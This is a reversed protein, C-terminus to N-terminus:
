ECRHIGPPLSMIPLDRFRRQCDTGWEPQPRDSMSGQLSNRGKEAEMFVSPQLVPKIQPRMREIWRWIKTDQLEM